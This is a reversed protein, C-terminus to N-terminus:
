RLAATHRTGARVWSLQDDDGRLSHPELDTAADLVDHTGTPRVRHVEYFPVAQNDQGILFAYWGRKTLRQGWLRLPVRSDLSQSFRQDYVLKRIRVNVLQVHLDDYFNDNCYQTLALHMTSLRLVRPEACRPFASSGLLMARGSSRWVAYVNTEEGEDVTSYTCITRTTKLRKAGKPACGPRVGAEAVSSSPSAAVAVILALVSLAFPRM